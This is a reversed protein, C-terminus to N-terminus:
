APRTVQEQVTKQLLSVAAHRKGLNIQLIKIKLKHRCNVKGNFLELDSFNNNRLM